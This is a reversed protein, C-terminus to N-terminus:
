RGEALLVAPRQDGLVLLLDCALLSERRRPALLSERVLPVLPPGADKGTTARDPGVARELVVHVEHAAVPFGLVRGVLEVVLDRLLALEAVRGAVHDELGRRGGHEELVPLFDQAHVHLVRRLQGLQQGLEEAVDLGLDLLELM